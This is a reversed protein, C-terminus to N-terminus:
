RKKNESKFSRVYDYIFDVTNTLSSFKPMVKSRRKPTYGSPYLGKPVKTRFVELPTTFLEPGVSGVKTPNVNHCRVCNAIYLRKGEQRLTEDTPYRENAWTTQGLTSLLLLTIM